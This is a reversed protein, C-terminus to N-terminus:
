MRTLQGCVEEVQPFCRRFPRSWRLHCLRAENVEVRVRLIRQQVARRTDLRRLGVWRGRRDEGLREGVPHGGQRHGIVPRHESRQLEVGGSPRRAHLRDDPDLGVHSGARPEIAVGTLALLLVVVQREQRPVLGAIAVQQLEDRLGVELAEVVPGAHVLLEQGLMGLADDAQRAAQGGLDPDLQEGALLRARQGGRPLIAVDESGVAVEDLHLIVAEGILPRDQGFLDLQRAVDAHRHHRRVIQVVRPGVVGLRM